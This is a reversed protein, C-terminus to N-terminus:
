VIVFVEAKILRPKKHSKIFVRYITYKRDAMITDRM